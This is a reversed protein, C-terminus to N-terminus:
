ELPLVSVFARNPRTVEVRVREGLSLNGSLTLTYASRVVEFVQPAPTGQGRQSLNFSAGATERALRELMSRSSGMAYLPYISVGSRRALRLVERESVRSSGEAGATVLLIVRRFTSSRFGGELAAYLADLIRPENGFKVSSVARLLLERSSTFDQILDAASHFAVVAMEEKPRLQAILGETVPQVASGLLSTDLLLMVDMPGGYLEASEVPRVTGDDLVTFDEAKLDTIPKGTRPDLVTVLVRTAAPAAALALLLLLLVRSPKM